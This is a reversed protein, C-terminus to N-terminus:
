GICAYDRHPIRVPGVLDPMFILLLGVNALIFFFGLLTVMNPALWLPLLEVFANWQWTKKTYQGSIGAELRPRPAYTPGFFTTPSPPSTSPRTSTPSSTSSPMTRFANLLPMRQTTPACRNARDCKFMLPEADGRARCVAIIRPWRQYLYITRNICTPLQRNLSRTFGSPSPGQFTPTCSCNRGRSYEIDIRPPCSLEGKHDDTSSYNVDRSLVICRPVASIQCAFHFCATFVV